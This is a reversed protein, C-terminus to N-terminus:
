GHHEVEGARSADIDRELAHVPSRRKVAILYAKPRSVHFCLHGCHLLSPRPRPSVALEDQEPLNLNQYEDGWPVKYLLFHDLDNAVTGQVPVMVGLSITSNSTLAFRVLAMQRKHHSARVLASLANAAKPTAPVVV